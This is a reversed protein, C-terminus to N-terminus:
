AAELYPEWLDLCVSDPGKRGWLEEATFRVTYLWHPDEGQGMGNSDPYVHYGRVAEIAGTKDWAYSPLRTHGSTSLRKTRVRDGAAFAADTNTPREYPFGRILWPTVDEHRWVRKAPRPPSLALGTEQELETVMGREALLQTLAEFWIEYYSRSWYFRPPLQERKHRGEDGTWAGTPGMAVTFGLVRREWPAHFLPEDKEPNIPGFGMMGGLDQAGKM